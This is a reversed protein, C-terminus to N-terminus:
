HNSDTIIPIDIFCKVKETKDSTFLNRIKLFYAFLFYTIIKNKNKPM